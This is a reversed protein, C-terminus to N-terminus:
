YLSSNDQESTILVTESPLPEGGDRWFKRKKLLNFKSLIAAAIVIVIAAAIIAVLAPHLYASAAIAYLSFGTSVAEYTVYENDESVKTTPLSQWSYSCLEQQAAPTRSEQKCGNSWRELRVSSADLGNDKLDAKSLKFIIKVNEIGADGLAEGGSTASLEFYQRTGALLTALVDSEAVPKALIKVDTIRVSPTVTIGTVALGSVNIPVFTPSGDPMAAVTLEGVPEEPQQEPPLQPQPPIVKPFTIAFTSFGSTVSTFETYGNRESGITTSLYKWTGDSYRALQMKTKDLENATLWSNNIKYSVKVDMMSDAFTSSAEIYQYVNELGSPTGNLLRRVTVEGRSISENVSFEISTWAIDEKNIAVTYKVSPLLDKLYYTATDQPEHWSSGGGGGSPAPAYAVTLAVTNSASNGHGDRATVKAVYSAAASYTKMATTSNFSTQDVVGNNDFDWEYTM